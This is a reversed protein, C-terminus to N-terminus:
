SHNRIRIRQYLLQKEIQQIIKYNYNEKFPDMIDKEKAQRALSEQIGEAVGFPKFRNKMIAIFLDGQGTDILDKM